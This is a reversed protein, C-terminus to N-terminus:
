LGTPIGGCASWNMFLSDIYPRQQEGGAGRLMSASSPHSQTPRARLRVDPRDRRHRAQSFNSNHAPFCPSGPLGHDSFLRCAGSSAVKSQDQGSISAKGGRDSRLLIAMMAVANYVCLQGWALAPIPVPLSARYDKYHTRMRSSSTLPRQLYQVSPSAHPAARERQVSYVRSLRSLTLRAWAPCLVCAATCRHALAQVVPSYPGSFSFITCQTELKTLTRPFHPSIISHRSM